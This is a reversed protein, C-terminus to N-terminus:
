TADPEKRWDWCADRATRKLLDRAHIVWGYDTDIWVSEGHGVAEQALARLLRRTMDVDDFRVVFFRLADVERRFREDLNDNAGYEEAAAKTDAVENVVLKWRADKAVLQLQDGFNLFEATEDRAIAALFRAFSSL